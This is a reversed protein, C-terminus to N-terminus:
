VVTVLGLCYGQRLFGRYGLCFVRFGVLGYVVRVFGLPSVM